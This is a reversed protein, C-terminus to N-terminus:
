FPKTLEKNIAKEIDKIIGQHKDFGRSYQITAAKIPKHFVALCLEQYSITDDVWEEKVSNIFIKRM